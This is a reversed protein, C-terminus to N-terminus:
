LPLFLNEHLYMIESNNDVRNEVDQLRNVIISDSM